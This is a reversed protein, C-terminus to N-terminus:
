RWHRCRDHICAFHPLCREESPPHRRGRRNLHHSRSPFVTYPACDATVITFIEAHVRTHDAEVVYETRQSGVVPTALFRRRRNTALHHLCLVTTHDLNPAMTELFPGVAINIVANLADIPQRLGIKMIRDVQALVAHDRNVLQHLNDGLDCSLGYRSAM